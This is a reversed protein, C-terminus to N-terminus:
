EVLTGIFLDSLMAEPKREGGHEDEFDATADRGCMDLIRKAGGPHKTIFSTVDYVGGNVVTWCSTADGHSQVDSFTYRNSEPTPTTDTGKAAEKADDSDDEHESRYSSDDEDFAVGGDRSEASQGARFAALDAAEREAAKPSIVVYGIGVFIFIAIVGTVLTKTTVM